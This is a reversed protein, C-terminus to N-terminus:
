FIGFLGKLFAWFYFVGSFCFCSFGQSLGLMLWKRLCFCTYSQAFPWSEPHKQPRRIKWGFRRLPNQYLFEENRRNQSAPTKPKVWFFRGKRGRFSKSTWSSPRFTVSFFLWFSILTLHLRLLVFGSAFALWLIYVICINKCFVCVCM